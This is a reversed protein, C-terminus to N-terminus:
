PAVVSTHPGGGLWRGCGSSVTSGCAGMSRTPPQLLQRYLSIHDWACLWSLAKAELVERSKAPDSARMHHAGRYTVAMGLCPWAWACVKGCVPDWSASLSHSFLLLQMPRTVAGWAEDLARPASPACLGQAFPPM